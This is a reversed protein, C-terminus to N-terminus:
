PTKLPWERLKQFRIVPRSLTALEKLEDGESNVRFLRDRTGFVAWHDDPLMMVATTGDRGAVYPDATIRRPEGGIKQVWTGRYDTAPVEATILLTDNGIWDLNQGALKFVEAKKEQTDILILGQGMAFLYRLDPSPSSLRQCFAPLVCVDSFSNLARDYAMVKKGGVLILARLKDVWLCDIIKVRGTNEFKAEDRDLDYVFVRNGAPSENSGIAVAGDPSRGRPNIPPLQVPAVHGTELSIRLLQNMNNLILFKESGLVVNAMMNSEQLTGLRTVQRQDKLVFGRWDVGSIWLDGNEPFFVRELGPSVVIGNGHSLDAERNGELDLRTFRGGFRCIIKREAKRYYIEAPQDGNLWNRFVLEGTGADYLDDGALFLRSLRNTVKEDLAKLAASEASERAAIAEPTKAQRAKWWFYFSLTSGLLVVAVLVYKPFRRIENYIRHLYHILYAFM